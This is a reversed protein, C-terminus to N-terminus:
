SRNAGLAKAVGRVVIATLAVGVIAFVYHAKDHMDEPGYFVVLLYTALMCLLLFSGLYQGRASLGALKESQYRQLEIRKRDNEAKLTQIHLETRQAEEAMAVIRLPISSDIAAFKQMSVPDCIPGQWSQKLMVEAVQASLEKVSEPPLVFAEGDTDDHSKEPAKAVSSKKPPKKM